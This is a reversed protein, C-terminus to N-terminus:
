GYEERVVVKKSRARKGEAEASEGDGGTGMGGKEDERGREEGERRGDSGTM